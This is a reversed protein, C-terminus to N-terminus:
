LTSTACCRKMPCPLQSTETRSRLNPIRPLSQNDLSNIKAQNCRGAPTKDLPVIFVKKDPRFAALTVITLDKTECDMAM